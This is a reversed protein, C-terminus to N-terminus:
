RAIEIERRISTTGCEPKKIIEQLHRGGAEPCSADIYKRKKSWDRNCHISHYPTNDLAFEHV